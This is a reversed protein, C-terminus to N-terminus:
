SGFERDPYPLKGPPTISADFYSRLSADCSAYGFNILQEQLSTSMKKLRTPTEALARGQEDTPADPMKVPYRSVPTRISWFAGQMDGDNYAQVVQRSRISHVQQHIVNLVRYTQRGWGPAPSAELPLSGGGDSVLVNTYRDWIPELGYNDYVGGDTLSIDSFFSDPVGPERITFADPSVKLKYPSLFPPFASSATVADALPLDPNDISGVRYDRMYPKSFRWLVGTELNTANIVFRPSAPIQQLSAGKFLHKDYQKAVYRAVGGPLFRGRLISPRDITRGALARVPDVVHDFLDERSNIQSWRLALVGATISGGSVSSIRSLRGILGTEHLRIVTGLHYLM